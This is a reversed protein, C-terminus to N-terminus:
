IENPVKFYEQYARFADREASVMAGTGTGYKHTPRNTRPNEAVYREM